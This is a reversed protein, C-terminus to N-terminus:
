LSLQITTNGELLIVHCCDHGVLFTERVVEAGNLLGVLELNHGDRPLEDLLADNAIPYGSIGPVDEVQLTTETDLNTVTYSDLTVPEGDGDVIEILVTRFEETCVLNGNCNNDDNCSVVILAFLPLFIHRM